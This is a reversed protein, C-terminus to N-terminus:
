ELGWLFLEHMFTLSYCVWELQMCGECVDNYWADVCWIVCLNMKIELLWIYVLSNRVFLLIMCSCILSFIRLWTNCICHVHILAIIHICQQISINNADIIVLHWPSMHGDIWHLYCIAFITTTQSDCWNMGFIHVGWLVGFTNFISNRRKFVGYVGMSKKMPICGPTMIEGHKNNHELHQTLKPWQLM